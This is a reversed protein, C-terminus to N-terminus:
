RAMKQRTSCPRYIRNVVKFSPKCYKRNKNSRIKDTVEANQSRHGRHCTFETAETVEKVQLRNGRYGTLGTHSKVETVLTIGTMNGNYSPQYM